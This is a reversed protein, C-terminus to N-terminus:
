RSPVRGKALLFEGVDRLGPQVYAREELDLLTEWAEPVQEIAEVRDYLAAALAPASALQVDHLGAGRLLDALEDATFFHRPPQQVRPHAPLDGNEAVSRIHWYEPRGLFDAPDIAESGAVFRLVGWRSSASALLWGNPRTVRVLERLAAEADAFLYNLVAGYCLTTDFSADPFPLRCIDGVLLGAARASVGHEELKARAIRIQEPSLDLLTVRSGTQAIAVGFRGAGCGADLVSRGEGLHDRLFHCHLHYILRRHATSGLREWEQMGYRDYFERVRGADFTVM